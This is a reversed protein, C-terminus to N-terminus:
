GAANKLAWEEDWSPKSNEARKENAITKMSAIAQIYAERLARAPQIGVEAALAAFEKNLEREIRLSIVTSNERTRM